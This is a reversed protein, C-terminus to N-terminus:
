GFLKPDWSTKTQINNIADPKSDGRLKALVEFDKVPTKEDRSLLVVRLGVLLDM